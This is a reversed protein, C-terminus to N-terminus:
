LPTTQAIESLHEILELARDLQFEGPAQAQRSHRSDFSVRTQLSNKRFIVKRGDGYALWTARRLGIGQPHLQRSHKGTDCPRRIM